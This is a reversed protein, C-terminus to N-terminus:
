KIKGGNVVIFFCIAMAVIFLIIRGILISNDLEEKEEKTKNQYNISYAERINKRGSKTNPNYSKPRGM